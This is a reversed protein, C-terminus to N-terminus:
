RRDCATRAPKSTMRMSAKVRTKVSRLSSGADLRNRGFLTEGLQNSLADDWLLPGVRVPHLLVRARALATELRRDPRVEEDGLSWRM